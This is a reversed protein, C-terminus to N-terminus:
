KRVPGTAQTFHRWVTHNTAHAMTAPHLLHKVRWVVVVHHHVQVRPPVHVRPVLEAALIFGCLNHVLEDVSQSVTVISVNRHSLSLPASLLPTPKRTDFLLISTLSFTPYLPPSLM